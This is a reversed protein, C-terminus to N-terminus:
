SVVRWREGDLFIVGQRQLADLAKHARIAMADSRSGYLEYALQRCDVEGRNRQIHRLVYAIKNEASM